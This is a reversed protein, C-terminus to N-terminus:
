QRAGFIASGIRVMTSGNAIAAETDGSMGVSLTDFNSLKTRYHEFLDHLQTLTQQQHQASVDAKPIAMLGRLVLNDMNSIADIMAPLEEPSLGSKSAEDDINLQVCVNLPPLSPPRQNNLRRAIKERDVSQVWQFHEAVVRTKNSQLPGILHWEIDPLDQLDIIKEVGEQVYNEGFLRQGAAYAQRIDSVPKTKSVALLKVSKPPRNANATASDIRSLASRLREAITQM